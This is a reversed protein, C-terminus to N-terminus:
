FFFSCNRQNRWIFIHKPDISYFSNTGKWHSNPSSVCPDIRSHYICKREPFGRERTVRCWIFPVEQLCVSHTRYIFCCLSHTHVSFCGTTGSYQLESFKLAGKDSIIVHSNYIRRDSEWNPGREHFGGLSLWVELKRSCNEPSFIKHADEFPLQQFSVFSFMKEEVVQSATHVAVNHRRDFEWEALPDGRPQVRHLWLGWAPLGHQCRARQGGRGATQLCVLQDKQRTYSDGPVSGGCPSMLHVHDQVSWLYM